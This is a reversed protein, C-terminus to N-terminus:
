ESNSSNRKMTEFVKQLLKDGDWIAVNTRKALEIASPSFKNNTVVFVKDLKYFEKGALAEQVAANGVTSSYRKCQIGINIDDISALIDIGQDGSTKTTQAIYGRKEFLTQIFKEFEVGSMGNIKDEIRLKETGEVNQPYYFRYNCTPCKVILSKNRFNVRIKQGCFSCEVIKEM